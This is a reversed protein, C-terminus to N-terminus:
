DTVCKGIVIEKIKFYAQYGVNRWDAPNSTIDGVFLSKPRVSLPPLVLRETRGSKKAAAIAQYRSEMERDYAAATGDRLERWARKVNSDQRFLAGALLALLFLSPLWSPITPRRASAWLRSSLSFLIALWFLLFHCYIANLARSPVSAIAYSPPLWLLFYGLFSFTLVALLHRSLRRGAAPDLSFAGALALLNFLLFDPSLIWSVSQGAGIRLARSLVPVLARDVGGCGPTAARLANGPSLLVLASFAAAAAILIAPWVCGLRKERFALLFVVTSLFVACVMAIENGGVALFLCVLILCFFATRSRSAQACIFRILFAYLFLSAILPFTHTIYGSHWFLGEAPSAMRSLYLIVFGVALPLCGPASATFIFRGVTRFLFLIAALFLMVIAASFLRYGAWSDFAIPGLSLIVMTSYRGGWTRYFYRTHAILSQLKSEGRAVSDHLRICQCYDDTSPHNYASLLLFPLLAALLASTGVILSITKV